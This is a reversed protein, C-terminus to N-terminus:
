THLQATHVRPTTKAKKCEHDLLSLAQTGDLQVHTNMKGRLYMESMCLSTKSNCVQVESVDRVHVLEDQFHMSVGRAQMNGRPYTKSMYTTYVYLQRSLVRQRKFDEM